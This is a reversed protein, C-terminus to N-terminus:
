KKTVRWLEIEADNQPQSGLDIKDSYLSENHSFYLPISLQEKLLWKQYRKLLDIKEQTLEPSEANKLDITPEMVSPTLYRLQVAPYRESAAYPILSFDFETQEPDKAKQFWEQAPFETYEIEIGMKKATGIIHDIFGQRYYNQPGILKIKKVTTKLTLSESYEELSLSYTEQFPLFRSANEIKNETNSKWLEGVFDMGIDGDVKKSIRKLYYVFSATTKSVSVPPESDREYAHYVKFVMDMDGGEILRTVAEPEPMVPFEISKPSNTFKKSILSHENRKLKNKEGDFGEWIYPGSFKTPNFKKSELHEEIDQKFWVGTEPSAIQLFFSEFNRTLNFVITNDNEVYLGECDDDLTKLNGCGKIYEWLPIHTSTKKILLYKYTAMIDDMTIPTGDSFKADSKIRFKHTTGDSEFSEAILSVFQGKDADYGILGESVHDLLYWEATFRIYAPDPFERVAGVHAVLRDLQKNEDKMVEGILFLTSVLVAFGTIAWVMRNKSLLWNGVLM